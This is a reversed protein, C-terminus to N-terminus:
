RISCLPPGAYSATTTISPMWRPRCSASKQQEQVFLRLRGLWSKLIRFRACSPWLEKSFSLKSRALWHCRGRASSPSQSPASGRLKETTRSGRELRSKTRAMCYSAIKEHENSGPMCVWVKQFIESIEEKSGFQGSPAISPDSLQTPFGSHTQDVSTTDKPSAAQSMVRHCPRSGTFAASSNKLSQQSIPKPILRLLMICTTLCLDALILQNLCTTACSTQQRLFLLALISFNNQFNESSLAGITRIRSCNMEVLLYELLRNIKM